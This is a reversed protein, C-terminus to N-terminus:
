IEFYFRSRPALLTTRVAVAFAFFFICFVSQGRDLSRQNSAVEPSLWHKGHSVLVNQHPINRGIVMRVIQSLEKGLEHLRRTEGAEVEAVSRLDFM